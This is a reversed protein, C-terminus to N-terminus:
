VNVGRKFRESLWSIPFCIAFYIAAVVVFVKLPEFTSNSILQGARTLEVFGILSTLSSNKVIQVLFGATAPRSIRLAQPLIVYRLRQVASLALAEAAEWQQKPISEICGRWIEALYVASFLVLSVGAAALPPVRLGMTSLGYYTLLIVVLLPTAQVLQIIALVVTRIHRPATVNVIAILLGLISGGVFAIASIAITWLSSLLLFQISVWELMM